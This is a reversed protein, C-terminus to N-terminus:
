RILESRRGNDGDGDQSDACAGKKWAKVEKESQDMNLLINLILDYNIYEVLVDVM